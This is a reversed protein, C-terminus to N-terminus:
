GRENGTERGALDIMRSVFARGIALYLSLHYPGLRGTYFHNHLVIIRVKFDDSLEGAIGHISELQGVVQERARNNAPHRGGALHSVADIAQVAAGWLMEAAAMDMAAASLLEEARLFTEAAAIHESYNM